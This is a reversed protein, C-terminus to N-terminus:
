ETTTATGGSGGIAVGTADAAFEALDAVVREAVHNREFYEETNPKGSGPMFLHNLRDYRRFTVNSEGGLADKWLPLDDEVTVQYDREGFLLLRPLELNRATKLHDYEALTRWYEDGGLHVVEDDPFDLGRIQEAIHRANNLQEREADTVTGDLEVLHRNQDLIADSASRALPALMAVGALNGDRAAIRPTLTGGLSHGTVVADGDAVLDTGRLAAVAALADNTVVEDITIEALNVDCAVTRKQYRLVAVGRSALGWALDKYVKNPGSTGDRDVPGSGHVLVVGPVREVGMPLTLTGELTCADTARLSVTRETFASQDAYAPSSWEEAVRRIQFGGIAESGFYLVVERRGREFEAVGTVVRYRNQESVELATFTRFAGIQGELGTWVQELRQTSIQEAATSDFRGHAEEFSGDALLGVFARARRKLEEPTPTGSTTEADSETETESPATTALTTSTATSVTTNTADGAGQCGALLATLGSGVATLVDRRDFRTM